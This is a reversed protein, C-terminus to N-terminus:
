QLGVRVVFEVEREPGGPYEQCLATVSYWSAGEAADGLTNSIDRAGGRSAGVSSAPLREVQTLTPAPPAGPAPAAPTGTFHGARILGQGYADDLQVQETSSPTLVRLRALFLNRAAQTCASLSDERAQLVAANRETGTFTIAGVVLLTALVVVLLAMVLAMGRPGAPRSRM